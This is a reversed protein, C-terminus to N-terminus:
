PTKEKKPEQLPMGEGLEVEYRYLGHFRSWFRQLAALPDLHEAKPARELYRAEKIWDMLTEGLTEKGGGAVPESAWSEPKGGREAKAKLKEMQNNLFCIVQEKAKSHNAAMRICEGVAAMQSPTIRAFKMQYLVRARRILHEELNALALDARLVRELEANM